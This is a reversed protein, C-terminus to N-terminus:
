GMVRAILKPTFDLYDCATLHYNVGGREGFPPPVLDMRLNHVHGFVAHRIAHAELMKTVDTPDM